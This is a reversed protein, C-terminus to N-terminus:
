ELAPIGYLPVPIRVSYDFLIQGLIKDEDDDVYFINNLQDPQYTLFEQSLQPVNDFERNLVFNRFQTRFKGHITDFCDLLDYWPRQYGFVELGNDAYYSGIPSIERNLIPQLGLKGFEPSYWDFALQRMFHKPITQSYSAMPMIHLIGIIYGDEDCYKNISHESGGSIWAQGAYDGLVGSDNEVTQTVQNVDMDRSTGGLYEPMELINYDVSVGWHAKIQDRYKYGKRVNNELWRQFSNVNRFDNISIGFSVANELANALTNTYSDDAASGRVATVVGDDDTQLALETKTGDDNDFVVTALNTSATLGVLPANGHQPSHLATTFQDDQWNAYRRPYNFTDAGGSTIELFKNYEPEGNIMLPNNESHRICANYVSEFARMPSSMLRITKENDNVVNAYPLDILPLDSVHIGGESVYDEARVAGFIEMNLNDAIEDEVYYGYAEVPTFEADDGSLLIQRMVNVHPNVNSLRVIFYKSEIGRSAISVIQETSEIAGDRSGITQVDKRIDSSGSAGRRSGSNSNTRLSGSRHSTSTVYQADDIYREARVLLYFNGGQVQGYYMQLSESSSLKKIPFRFPRYVYNSAGNVIDISDYPISVMNTAALGNYEANEFDMKKGVPLEEYLSTYPNYIIRAGRHELAQMRLALPTHEKVVVDVGMNDLPGGVRLLNKKSEETFKHYPPVLNAKMKFQFDKFDDWLNRSRVYYYALSARVRTQVPFVLPLFNFSHKHKISVSEGNMVPQCFVPMLEGFRASLHKGFTKNFVNRKPKDVHQDDKRYISSM